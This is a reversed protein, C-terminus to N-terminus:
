QPKRSIFPKPSSYTSHKKKRESVPSSDLRCTGILTLLTEHIMYTFNYIIYLLIFPIMSKIFYYNAKKVQNNGQCSNPSSGSSMSMATSLIVPRSKQMFTFSNMSNAPSFFFLILSTWQYAIRKISIRMYLKNSNYM